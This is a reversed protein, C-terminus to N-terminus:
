GRKRHVSTRVFTQTPGARAEKDSHRSKNGKHKNKEEHRKKGNSDPRQRRESKDKNRLGSNMTANFDVKHKWKKNRSYHSMHEKVSPGPAFPPLSDNLGQLATKLNKTNFAGHLYEKISEVAATDTPTTDSTALYSEQSGIDKRKREYNITKCLPTEM